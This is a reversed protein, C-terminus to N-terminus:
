LVKWLFLSLNTSLTQRTSSHGIRAAAQSFGNGRLPFVGRRCVGGGAFPVSEVGLSVDAFSLLWSRRKLSIADELTRVPTEDILNDNVDTEIKEKNQKVIAIDAWFIGATDGDQAKDDPKRVKVTSKLNEEPM